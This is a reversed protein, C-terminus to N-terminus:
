PLTALFLMMKYMVANKIPKGIDEKRNWEDKSVASLTLCM